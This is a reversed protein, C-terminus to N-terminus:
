GAFEDFPLRVPSLLFSVGDEKQKVQWVVMGEPPVGPEVPFVFPPIWM